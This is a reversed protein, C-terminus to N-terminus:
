GLGSKNSSDLIASGSFIYGLASDPYLAIDHEKWTVLNETSAHGWHMPGWQNGNPYYQYYLHYKGNSYFMGNPDNMWNMKPTFHFLPRYVEASDLKLSSSELKSPKEWTNSCSILTLGISCVQLLLKAKM